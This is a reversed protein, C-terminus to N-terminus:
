RDTKDAQDQRWEWGLKLLNALYASLIYPVYILCTYLWVVIFILRSVQVHGNLDTNFGQCGISDSPVPKIVPVWNRAGAENVLSYIFLVPFRLWQLFAGHLIKKVSSLSPAAAFVIRLVIYVLLGQWLSQIISVGLVQSINYLRTEM